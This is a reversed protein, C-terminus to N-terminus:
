YKLFHQFIKGFDGLKEQDKLDMLIDIFDHRRINNKKRYHIMDMTIRIFFEEVDKDVFLRGIINYLWPTKRVLEKFYTKIDNRFIKKGMRRFENSEDNIANIDLGFACSGIVDTTFRATLDRCEVTENKRVIRMLYREFHESCELLLYFMNKLKGSTFLPTLKTRLPRWKSAKVRFLNESLPEHQFLFRFHETGKSKEFRIVRLDYLM